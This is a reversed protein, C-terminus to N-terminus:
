LKIEINDILRVDECLVAVCCHISKHFIKEQVSLLTESDVIEVYEVKLPPIAEVHKKFLMKIEDIQYHHIWQEVQKLTQYIIGAKEYNEKSLRLNRSSMALGNDERVIECGIIEIPFNLDKVLKRIVALQQFDKKGFFAKDPKVIEFLKSVIQCVGQFHGPRYKGEMINEIYGIDFVRKEQQPYMEKENPMFLLDCLNSNELMSIDKDYIRPYKEYDSRDNFQTPNVFISVVVFKCEEKAQRILSLHGDHLAGMTPVFGITKKENKVIAVHGELESVTKVVFM